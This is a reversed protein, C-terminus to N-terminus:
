RELGVSDLICEMAMKGYISTNILTQIQMSCDVYGGICSVGSAMDTKNVILIHGDHVLVIRHKGSDIVKM